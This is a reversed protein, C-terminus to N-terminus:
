FDGEVYRAEIETSLQQWIDQQSPGFLKRWTGM